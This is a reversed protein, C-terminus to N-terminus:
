RNWQRELGRRLWFAFTFLGATLVLLVLACGFGQELELPTRYQSTVVYIRYPLAEFKDLPGGPLATNFVAGTLMIVATDEAIRGIALIVGSLIGRSASPVVVFILNQWPTLGLSPGIMRIRQPLGELANQTTRVLYPLVLIALCFAALLLCTTAEPALTQRLFLILTFGFLGMVISPIGALLDVGFGIAARQRPTAYEALYIGGAVGLPVAVVAGIVVLALTGALAPWIGGFVPRQGLIAEVLPIDGFFFTRNLVGVGRVAVVIVVVAVAGAVVCAAAYAFPKVLKTLIRRM